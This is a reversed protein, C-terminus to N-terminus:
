NYFSDPMVMHDILRDTVQCLITLQGPTLSTKEMRELTKGWGMETVMMITLIVAAESVSYEDNMEVGMADGECYDCGECKSLHHDRDLERGMTYGYLAATVEDLTVISM